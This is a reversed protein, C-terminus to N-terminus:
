RSYFEVILQENVIPAIEDRTPVRKVEGKMSERNIQLWDPVPQVQTTELGKTALQRSVANERVSIVEGVRTLYSAITVKRGNVAIHGHNVMQRSARRSPAFGLRYVMNDLRSELLQLLTEGTIGRRHLAIEFYRRFQKEQLGYMLRLKQKEALGTAFDTQKRRGKEGHVGPPYNKREFSKSPGYLLVGYRRSKKTRPGTYRSM